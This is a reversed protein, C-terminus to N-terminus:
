FAPQRVLQRYLGIELHVSGPECGPFDESNPQRRCCALFSSLQDHEERRM